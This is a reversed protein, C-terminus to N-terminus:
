LTFECELIDSTQANYNKLSRILTERLKTRLGSDQNFSDEPIAKINLVKLLNTDRLIARLVACQFNNSDLSTPYVNGFFSKQTRSLEDIFYKVGATRNKSFTNLINELLKYGQQYGELTTDILASHIAYCLCLVPDNFDFVEPYDRQLQARQSILYAEAETYPAKPDTTGKFIWLLEAIIKYKNQNTKDKCTKFTDLVAQLLIKPQDSRDPTTPQNPNERGLLLKQVDPISLEGIAELLTKKQILSKKM